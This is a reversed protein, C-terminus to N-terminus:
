GGRQVHFQVLLIVYSGITTIMGYLLGRNISYLDNNTIVFDRELHDITLIEILRDVHHESHHKTIRKLLPLVKKVRESCITPIIILFYLQSCQISMYVLPNLYERADYFIFGNNLKDLLVVYVYYITYVVMFFYWACLQLVILDMIVSFQKAIRAAQCHLMYLHLLAANVNVVPGDKPGYNTLFKLIRNIAGVVSYCMLLGIVFVDSILTIIYMLSFYAM